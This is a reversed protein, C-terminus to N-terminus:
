LLTGLVYGALAGSLLGAGGAVAQLVVFGPTMLGKPTPELAPEADTWTDPSPPASVASVPAPAPAQAPLDVTGFSEPLSVTGPGTQKAPQAQLLEDTSKAQVTNAPKDRNAPPVSAPAQGSRLRKVLALAESADAPRQTPDPSTLAKVADRLWRPIQLDIEWLDQAGVEHHWKMKHLPTSDPCAARGTVMEWAVLGAAYVDGRPDLKGDFAEAPMYDLTGSITGTRTAKTGSAAKSIGFDLLKVRGDPLLFINNPKIDRHLVGKGHAYALPELIAELLEGARGEIRGGQIAEHLDEGPLLEMIMAVLGERLILDKFGVIGPHGLDHLLQSERAISEVFVPDRSLAPHVVKM